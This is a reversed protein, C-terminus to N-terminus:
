GISSQMPATRLYADYMWNLFGALEAPSRGNDFVALLAADNGQTPDIVFLGCETSRSYSVLPRSEFKLM